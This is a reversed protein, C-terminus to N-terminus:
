NFIDESELNKFIFQSSIVLVSYLIFNIYVFDFTFCIIYM